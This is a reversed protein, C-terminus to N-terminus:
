SVTHKVELGTSCISCAKNEDSKLFLNTSDTHSIKGEITLVKEEKTELVTINLYYM